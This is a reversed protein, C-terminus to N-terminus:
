LGQMALTVAAVQPATLTTNYLALALINGTMYLQPGGNNFCGIYVEGAGTSLTVATSDAVGNLYGCTATIALIAAASSASGTVITYKWEGTEQRIYFRASERGFLMGSGSYGNVRVIGSWNAGPVIGTTLYQSSAAAFTWGTAAAFTPATGPAANYTGPNALNVYSAAIDVAGKPQYAAVCSAALVGGALYWPGSASLAAVNPVYPLGGIRTAVRLM